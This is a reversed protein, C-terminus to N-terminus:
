YEANSSIRSQLVVSFTNLVFSITCFVNVLICFYYKNYIYKANGKMATYKVTELPSCGGEKKAGHLQIKLVTKKLFIKLM